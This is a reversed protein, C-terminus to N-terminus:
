ELLAISTVSLWRCQKACQEQTGTRDKINGRGHQIPSAWCVITAVVIILKEGLFWDSKNPPLVQQLDLTQPQLHSFRLQLASIISQILSKALLNPAIEPIKYILALEFSGHKHCFLGISKNGQVKSANIFSPFTSHWGTQPVDNLIDMSVTRPNNQVIQEWWNSFPSLIGKWNLCNQFGLSWPQACDCWLVNNSSCCVKKKRDSWEGTGTQSQNM